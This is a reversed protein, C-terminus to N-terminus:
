YKSIRTFAMYILALGFIIIIIQPFMVPILGPILGVTALVWLIGYLVILVGVIVIIKYLKGSFRPDDLIM